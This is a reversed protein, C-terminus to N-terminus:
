ARSSRALVEQDGIVYQNRKSLRKLVAEPLQLVARWYARTEFMGGSQRIGRGHIRPLNTLHQVLM